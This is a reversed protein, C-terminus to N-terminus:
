EDSDGEKLDELEERLETMEKEIEPFKEIALNLKALYDAILAVVVIAVIVAAAFLVLEGTMYKLGFNGCDGIASAPAYSKNFACIGQAELYTENLGTGTLNM